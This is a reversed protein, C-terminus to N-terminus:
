NQHHHGSIEKADIEGRFIILKKKINQKKQYPFATQSKVPDDYSTYPFRFAGLATVRDARM